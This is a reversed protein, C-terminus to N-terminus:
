GGDEWKVIRAHPELYDTWNPTKTGIAFKLGEGQLNMADDPGLAETSTFVNTDRRLFMVAMMNSFVTLVLINLLLSLCSGWSTKLEANGDVNTTQFPIGFGDLSLFLGTLGGPSNQSKQSKRPM